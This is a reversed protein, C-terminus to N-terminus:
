RFEHYSKELKELDDSALIWYEAQKVAHPGLELRFGITSDVSGQAIPNMSLSGDEADRWTGEFDKFGKLGTAYQDLGATETCGGFLFYCPGKYHVIGDMEPHYFATDGIDTEMIRLDHSFFLKVEVAKSALNKVELCRVFWNERHSIAEHTEIEIGLDKNGLIAHGNLSGPKYKFDYAWGDEHVWSFKGDVWAGMRIPHGSLHNWRGVQPYFLDRIAYRADVGIFFAGNSFVLPRPM